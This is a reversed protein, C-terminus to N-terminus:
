SSIPTLAGVGEVGRGVQRDADPVRNLVAAVVELFLRDSLQLGADDERREQGQRFLGPNFALCEAGRRPPDREIVVEGVIDHSVDAIVPTELAAGIVELAIIHVL